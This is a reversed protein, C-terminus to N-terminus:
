PRRSPTTWSGSITYGARRPRGKEDVRLFEVLDDTTFESLRKGPQRRQLRKFVEGWSYVTKKAFAPNADFFMKSATPYLYENRLHGGYPLRSSNPEPAITM